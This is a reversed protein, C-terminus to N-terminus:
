IFNCVRMSCTLEEKFATSYNSASYGSDLGIETVSKEKNVKLNVASLAIRNHKIFSYLSEGVEDVTLKEDIHAFIYEIAQNIVANQIM